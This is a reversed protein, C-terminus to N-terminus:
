FKAVIAASLIADTQKFGPTPVNVFHLLHTLKLSFVKSVKATLAVTNDVRYDSGHALSEVIRVDETFESTDAIKYKYGAGALFTANSSSPAGVPHQNAWGIAADVRLTQRAQDVLKYALGAAITHRQDIGAFRSMLFDYQVFLATRKTLDRSLRSGFAFSKTNVVDNSSARVFAAKLDIVWPLPRYTVSGGAALTNTATNGSTNVFSLEGSGEVHPPPPPPQPPTQPAQGASAARSWLLLSLTAAAITHARTLM